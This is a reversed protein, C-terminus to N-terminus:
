SLGLNSFGVIDKGAPKNMGCGQIVYTNLAQMSRAMVSPANSYFWQLVPARRM